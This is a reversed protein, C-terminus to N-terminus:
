PSPNLANPASHHIASRRAHVRQAARSILSYAKGVFTPAFVVLNALTRREDTLQRVWEQTANLDFRRIGHKAAWDILYGLLLLGPSAANSRGDRFTLLATLTAGHRVNLQAAIPEGDQSAVALIPTMGLEDDSLLTEFFARQRGEYPVSIQKGGRGDHKWSAKAIQAFGELHSDVAHKGEHLAIEIGFRAAADRARRVNQRFKKRHRALIEDIPRVENLSLINRHIRHVWPNLRADRFAAVWDKEDDGEYVPLVIADWDPLKAIAAAMTATVAPRDSDRCLLTPRLSTAPWSVISSIQRVPFPRWGGPSLVRDSPAYDIRPVCSPGRWVHAKMIPLIGRLTEGDSVVVLRTDVDSSLIRHWANFYAPLMFCTVSEVNTALRRWAAKVADFTTGPHLVDARLRSSSGQSTGGYLEQVPSGTVNTYPLISM